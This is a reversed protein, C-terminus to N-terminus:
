DLIYLVSLTSKRVYIHYVQTTTYLVNVKTCQISEYTFEVESM